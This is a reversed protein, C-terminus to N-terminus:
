KMLNILEDQRRIRESEIEACEWGIIASKRIDGWRYGGLNGTSQIVRHCPILFAIPNNGIAVGVARSANINGIKEAITGYTSLKGMPIKLITSWVTLQFATGKLHLKIKPSNSQDKQFISLAQRQFLDTNQKFRAHPFKLKLNNLAQTEDDYFEMLCVGKSTSAVLLNGFPCEAFDYNISLCKSGNKYEDPTMEEYTIFWDHLRRRHSLGTECDVDFLTAQNDNLLNKAHEISIYQLFKKPTTGAWDNFLREFHFRSLQVYDAIENLDSRTNFKSTIYEIAKAVLQYNNTQQESTMSANKKAFNSM